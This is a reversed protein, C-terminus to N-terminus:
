DLLMVLILSTPLRFVHLCRLMKLCCYQIAFYYPSLVIISCSFSSSVVPIELLFNRLCSPSKIVPTNDPEMSEKIAQPFVRVVLPKVEIAEVM